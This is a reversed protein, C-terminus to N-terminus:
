RLKPEPTSPGCRYWLSDFVQGNPAHYPSTTPEAEYGLQGMIRQVARNDVGTGVYIELSPSRLNFQQRQSAIAAGLLQRGYGKGRFDPHIVLGLSLSNEPDIPSDHLTTWGVQSNTTREIGVIFLMWFDTTSKRFQERVTAPDLEVMGNTTMTVPDLSAEVLFDLDSATPRRFYLPGDIWDSLQELAKRDSFRTYWPGAAIAVAVILGIVLLVGFNM